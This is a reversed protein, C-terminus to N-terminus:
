PWAELPTSDDGPSLGIRVPAGTALPYRVAVEFAGPEDGDERFIREVKGLGKTHECTHRVVYLEGLQAAATKTILFRAVPTQQNERTGIATIRICGPRLPVYVVAGQTM